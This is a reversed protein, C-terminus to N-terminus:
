LNRPGAQWWFVGYEIGVEDKGKEIKKVWQEEGWEERMSEWPFFSGVLEEYFCFLQVTLVYSTKNGQMSERGKEYLIILGKINCGDRASVCYETIIM